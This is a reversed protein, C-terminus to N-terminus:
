KWCFRHCEMRQMGWENHSHCKHLYNQTRFRYDPLETSLSRVCGYRIRFVVRRGLCGDPNLHTSWLAPLRLMRRKRYYRLFSHFWWYLTDNCSCCHLYWWRHYVPSLEQWKHYLSRFVPVYVAKRFASAVCRNGPLPPNYGCKQCVDPPLLMSKHYATQQWFRCFCSESSDTQAPSRWM